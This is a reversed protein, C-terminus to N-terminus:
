TTTTGLFSLFHDHDPLGQLDRNSSQHYSSELSTKTTELPWSMAYTYKICSNLAGYLELFQVPLSNSIASAFTTLKSLNNSTPNRRPNSLMPKRKSTNFNTYNGHQFKVLDAIRM